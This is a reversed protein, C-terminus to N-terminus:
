TFGECTFKKTSTCYTEDNLTYQFFTMIITLISNMKQYRQIGTIYKAWKMHM